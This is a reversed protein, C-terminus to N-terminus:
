PHRHIHGYMSRLSTGCVPFTTGPAIHFLSRRCDPFIGFIRWMSKRLVMSIFRKNGHARRSWGTFSRACETCDATLPLHDRPSSSRICVSLGLPSIRTNERFRFFLVENRCSRHRLRLVRIRHGDPQIRSRRCKCPHPENRSSPKREPPVGIGDNQWTLQPDLVSGERQRESLDDVLGEVRFLLAVLEFREGILM